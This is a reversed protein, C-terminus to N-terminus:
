HRFNILWRALRIWKEKSLITTQLVINVVNKIPYLDTQIKLHM